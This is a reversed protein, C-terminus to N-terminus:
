EDRERPLGEAPLAAACILTVAENHSFHGTNVVLDYHGVELWNTRYFHRIYRGRAEDVHKIRHEARDHDLGEAAMVREVRIEAPATVLVHLTTPHRPLIFAGGRGVILADNTRAVEWIVERIMQLQSAEDLEPKDETPQPLLTAPYLRRMTQVLESVISGEREERESVSSLPVGLRSAVENIVEYDVFRLGLRSAVEKGIEDGLSGYQRSVTIVPM